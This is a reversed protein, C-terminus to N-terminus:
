ARKSPTHNESAALLRRVHAEVIVNRYERLLSNNEDARIRHYCSAQFADAHSLAESELQELEQPSLKALFGRVKDFEAQSETEKQIKRVRMAGPSTLGLMSGALSSSKEQGRDSGSAESRQRISAVLFGPPNALASDQGRQKLGDYERIAAGITSASHDRVLRTAMPERVGRTVLATELPVSARGKSARQKSGRKRVFVIEWHGRRCERYRAERPLPELFGVHELQAIAPNLRRKLQSNDDRRNFGIHEFAFVRLDFSLRNTFYFRKDLFRYMRKAAALDLRRYVNMDLQKLYGAQFSGFVVENWTITWPQRRQPGRGRKVAQKPKGRPVVVNDLLHFHEDMWTQRLKDWWAHDYYLTVGIWRKLSKELRSYSRGEERWGLLRFLEAPVFALRRDTFRGANTLQVLGLIVEDDSATPLGYEASAAVTLRKRVMTKQRKDWISDEFVLTDKGKPCRSALGALPFEALNLEDRGIDM